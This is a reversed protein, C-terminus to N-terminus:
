SAMYRAGALEIRAIGLDDGLDAGGVRGAGHEPPDGGRVFVQTQDALDVIKARNSPDLVLRARV